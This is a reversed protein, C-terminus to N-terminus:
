LQGRAAKPKQPAALQTRAEKRIEELFLDPLMALPEQWFAAIRLNPFDDLDIARLRSGFELGPARVSL